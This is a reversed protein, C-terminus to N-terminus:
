SSLNRRMISKALARWALLWVIAAVAAAVTIAASLHAPRGPSAIQSFLFAISLIGLWGIIILLLPQRLAEAIARLRFPPSM